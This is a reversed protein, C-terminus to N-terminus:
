TSLRYIWCRLQCLTVSVMTIKKEINSYQFDQSQISQYARHIKWAISFYTFLILLCPLFTCLISLVMIFTAHNVSEGYGAWDVSCAVGFPEPGYSGWGLLPFVAWLGAYLWIGGILVRITPRQFKVGSSLSLKTYWTHSPYLIYPTGCPEISLRNNNIQM